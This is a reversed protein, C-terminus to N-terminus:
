YRCLFVVFRVRRLYCLQSFSILTNGVSCPGPLLSSSRLTKGLQFNAGEEVPSILATKRAANTASWPETYVNNYDDHAWTAPGQASNQAGLLLKEYAVERGSSRKSM